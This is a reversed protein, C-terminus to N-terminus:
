LSRLLARREMLLVGLWNYGVGNCRGWFTDNWWNDEVLEDDGTDLLRQSLETGPEFKLAQLEKMVNLRLGDWGERMVIIGGKDPHSGLKKAVKPQVSFFRARLAPDTTKAAQYANETAIYDDGEFTVSHVHFNSLFRFAGFFGNVVSM